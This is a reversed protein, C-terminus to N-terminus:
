QAHFKHWANLSWTDWSTQSPKGPCHVLAPIKLSLGSFEWALWVLYDGWEPVM